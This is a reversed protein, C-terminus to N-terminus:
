NEEGLIAYVFDGTQGEDIKNHTARGTLYRRPIGDPFAKCTILNPLLDGYLDSGFDFHRCALCASDRTMGNPLPIDFDGM